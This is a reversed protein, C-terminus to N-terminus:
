QPVGPVAASDTAAPTAPAAEAPAATAADAAPAAAADPAQAAAADPVAPAADAPAAAAAPAAATDTTAGAAQEAEAQAAATADAAQATSPAAATADPAPSAQTADAAPAAEAATGPMPDDAAPAAAPTADVAPSTNAPATDAPTAEAAPAPDAPTTSVSAAADLTAAEAPAAPAAKNPTDAAAPAAETPAAAETPVSGSDPAAEATVSSSVAATASVAQDAANQAPAAQVPPTAANLLARADSSVAERLKQIDDLASDMRRDLEILAEINPKQFMPGKVVKGHEDVDFLGTEPNIKSWNSAMVEGIMLHGARTISNIMGNAVVITDVAGDIVEVITEMDSGNEVTDPLNSRLLNSAAKIATAALAAEARVIASSHTPALAHMMEGVEELILSAYLWAGRTIGPEAPIEQGAMAMFAMQQVIPPMATVRKLFEDKM